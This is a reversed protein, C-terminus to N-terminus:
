RPDVVRIVMFDNFILFPPAAQIKIRFGYDGAVVRFSKLLDSRNEAIFECIYSGFDDCVCFHFRYDPRSFDIAFGSLIFDGDFFEVEATAIVSNPFNLLWNNNTKIPRSNDCIKDRTEYFNIRNKVIEIYPTLSKDDIENRDLDDFIAMFNKNKGDDNKPWGREVKEMYETRSRTHYHHIVARDYAPNLKSFGRSIEGSTSIGTVLDPKGVGVNAVIAHANEIRIICQPQAFVKTLSRFGDPARKVFSEIVLGTAPQVHGSTGFNRWFLSVIKYGLSDLFEPLRKPMDDGLVVFEDVDL